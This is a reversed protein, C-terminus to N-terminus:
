TYFTVCTRMRSSSLQLLSSAVFELDVSAISRSIKQFRIAMYYNKTYLVKSNRQHSLMENEKRHQMYVIHSTISEGGM